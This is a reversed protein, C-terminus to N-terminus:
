LTIDSERLALLTVVHDRIGFNEPFNHSLYRPLPIHLRHLNTLLNMRAHTVDSPRESDIGLKQLEGIANELLTQVVDPLVSGHEKQITLLEDILAPIHPTREVVTRLM